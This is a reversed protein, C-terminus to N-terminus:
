KYQNAPRGISFDERARTLNPSYFRDNNMYEAWNDNMYQVERKFREQKEPTDEYGRTKSEYHYLRVDPLVLNYKGNNLLKLCLDVDNCAVSLTEEFGNVAEFDKKKLMLCAGTVASYNSNLLLRGVYGPSNMPFGKHSHGAWGGIGLIVGAHQLTNDPYLLMAGVAGISERQAQGVMSELWTSTIVETDNNLFLLMEGDAIRAGENNLKPYNFPIDLELVKFRENVKTKWEKFLEFTKVDTSGNDVIIVEFNNYTTKQFISELCGALIEHGDRTPIIISVMPEDVVPYKVLYQGPYNPIPNVLGGEERRDLAEQIAKLGAVFAYNKASSDFATSDAITRWHYLVKPIHYIKNTKETLRLVLDYDQSGEFGKRFGGIERVLKTRYVGLHCTYMQSLFTDPSWDPKFFPSHIEGEESIKDEDSYIMDADQYKNLLAVNEYLADLTLEDDHDLLAVFEGNAMELADNSTLSIHGNETRFKVKIRNDSSALENLLPRIHTKTSCDDVLCLEWNPYVQNKVSDVCDRLWREDVNYVPVLISILPKYRFSLASAKMKEWEQDSRESLKIFQDYDTAKIGSDLPSHLFSINKKALGRWGETKLLRISKKMLLMLSRFTFGNKNFFVFVPRILLEPKLVPRITVNSIAFKQELEGPDLRLAHVSKPLRVIRKMRNSVTDLYGVSAIQQESMGAGVDYYITLPTLQEAEGTYSIEMWGGFIPSSIHFNPDNGISVWKGDPTLELDHTPILTVDKEGLVKRKLSRLAKRMFIGTERLPKTLRWSRSTRFLLIEQNASQLELQREHLKQEILLIERTLDKVQVDKFAIESSLSDSLSKLKNAEDIIQELKNNSDRLERELQENKDKNISLESEYKGIIAERQERYEQEIAHVVEPSLNFQAMRIKLNLPESSEPFDSIYFYPDNNLSILFMDEHNGYIIMNEAQTVREYLQIESWNETGSMAIEISQINIAATTNSPDIRLPSKIGAPLTLIYDKYKGNSEINCKISNNENFNGDSNNIYYIQLKADFHIGFTELSIKNHANFDKFISNINQNYHLVNSDEQSNCLDMSIRLLERYNFPFKDNEIFHLPESKSHRLNPKLLTSLKKIVEQEDLDVEMLRMIKNIDNKNNELLRDYNVIVRADNSTWYLASITYYAWLGISKEMSYGDRKWLSAAIDLPNRITIVFKCEINLEAFILKWLPLLICTRPDKFVWLPHHMFKELIIQKIAEKYINIEPLEWWNEPFIGVSDWVLNLQQLIQDNISVFQQYEWFGEPNDEQPPLLEDEEGVYAGLASIARTVVSTGSRHMGLVCIVKSKTNNM